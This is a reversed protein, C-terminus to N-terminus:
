MCDIVMKAPQGSVRCISLSVPQASPQRIALALAHRPTPRHEVFTWKAAEDADAPHFRVATPDLSFSFSDLPRHLGEGTAKILAEKLTWLRFFAERQQSSATAHLIAVESPTFFRDAIDLGGHKRSLTEVDIGVAAGTAIACAVFGRSHSLNFRLDPRGLVPDIEPKGYQEAIFRWDTPPLGGVSALANRILWHAAIYTSRDQDFHFRDAQLQEAADLCSRWDAVVTAPPADVEMWWVLIRARKSADVMQRRM